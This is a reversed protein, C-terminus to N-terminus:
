PPRGHVSGRADGGHRLFGRRLLPACSRACWHCHWRAPATGDGAAAARAAPPEQAVTAAQGGAQSGHHTVIERWRQRWRRARRAHAFRGARSAQYRRGAERLSERRAGHACARGCYRQGRDCRSCILVEIGCRACAFTRASGPADGQGAGRM